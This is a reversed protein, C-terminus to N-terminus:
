KAIENASDSYGKTNFSFDKIPPLIRCLTSFWVYTRVIVEIGPNILIILASFARKRVGFIAFNLAIILQILWSVLLVIGVYLTSLLVRRLLAQNHPNISASPENSM